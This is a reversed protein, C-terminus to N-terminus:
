RHFANGPVVLGMTTYSINLIKVWYSKRQQNESKPYPRSFKLVTVNNETRYYNQLLMKVIYRMCSCLSTEAMQNMATGQRLTGCVM